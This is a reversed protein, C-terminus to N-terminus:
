RPGRPGMFGGRGRMPGGPGPFRNFRGMDGPPYGMENQMNNPPMGMGSGTMDNPSMGMGSGTMDNPSMGMGSGTMDNPSMAMGSGTMDNPSMGMTMDGSQMDMPIESNQMGMSMDNNQIEGAQMVAMKDESLENPVMFEQKVSGRDLREDIDSSGEMEYNSIGDMSVGNEEEM